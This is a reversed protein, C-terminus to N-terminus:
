SNNPVDKTGNIEQHYARRDSAQWPREKAPIVNMWNKLEMKPNKVSGAHKHMIQIAIALDEKMYTHLIYWM